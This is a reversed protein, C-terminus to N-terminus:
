STTAASAAACKQLAFAVSETKASVAAESDKSM